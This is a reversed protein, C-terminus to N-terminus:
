RNKPSVKNEGNEKENKVVKRGPNQKGQAPACFIAKGGGFGKCIHSFYDLILEDMYYFDTWGLLAPITKEVQAKM